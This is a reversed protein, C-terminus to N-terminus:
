HGSDAEPLGRLRQVCEQRTPTYTDGRSWAAVADAILDVWTMADRWGSGIYLGSYPGGEATPRLFNLRFQVGFVLFPNKLGSVAEEAQEVEVLLRPLRAKQDSPLAEYADKLTPLLAVFEDADREILAHLHARVAQLTARDNPVASEGMIDTLVPFPHSSPAYQGEEDEAPTDKDGSACRECICFASFDFEPLDPSLYDGCQQCVLRM